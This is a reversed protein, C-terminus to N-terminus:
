TRWAAPLFGGSCLWGDLADVASALDDLAEVADSRSVAPDDLLRLATALADRLLAYAADPDMTRGGQVGIIAAM